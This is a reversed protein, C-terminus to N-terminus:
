TLSSLTRAHYHYPHWAKELLLCLQTNPFLGRINSTQLSFVVSASSLFKRQLEKEEWTGRSSISLDDTRPFQRAAPLRFEYLPFASSKEVPRIRGWQPQHWTQNTHRPDPRLCLPNKTGDTPNRLVRGQCGHLNKITHRNRRFSNANLFTQRNKLDQTQLHPVPM